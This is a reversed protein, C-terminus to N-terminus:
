AVKPYETPDIGMVQLAQGDDTAASAYRLTGVDQVEPLEYNHALIIANREATLERIEASLDKILSPDLPPPVDSAQLVPLDTPM